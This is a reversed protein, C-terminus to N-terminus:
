RCPASADPHKSLWEVLADATIQTPPVYRHAANGNLIFDAPIGQANSVVHWCGPQGETDSSGEKAVLWDVLAKWQELSIGASRSLVLTNTETNRLLTLANDNNYKRVFSIVAQRVNTIGNKPQIELIWPTVAANGFNTHVKRFTIHGITTTIDTDEPDPGVHEELNQLVIAYNIQTMIRSDWLLTVLPTIAEGFVLPLLPVVFPVMLTQFLRHSRTDKSLTSFRPQRFSRLNNLIQATAQEFGAMHRLSSTKIHMSFSSLVREQWFDDQWYPIECEAARLLAVICAEVIAQKSEITHALCKNETCDHIRLIYNSIHKPHAGGYADILDIERILQYLAKPLRANGFLQQVVLAVSSYAHHCKGEQVHEDFLLLPHAGGNQVGGMGFVAAKAWRERLAADNTAHNIVTEEIPLVHKDESLLSRFLLMAMYEDLHPRLHTCLMTVDNAGEPLTAPTNRLLVSIYDAATRCVLSALEEQPVTDPTPLRLAKLDAM